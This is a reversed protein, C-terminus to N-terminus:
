HNNENQNSERIFVVQRTATNIALKKGPPPVPFMKGRLTSVNTLEWVNTPCHGNVMTYLAVARNLDALSARSGVTSQSARDCGGTAGIM